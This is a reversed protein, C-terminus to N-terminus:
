AGCGCRRALRQLRRDFIGRAALGAQTQALYEMCSGNLGAASRVVRVVEDDALRGAYHRASRNVVFAIAAVVGQPTCARIWTPRYGGSLMERRWVLRLEDHAHHRAVRLAVGRCAGGRELGLVLGPQAVSGRGILSWLCFSRHLGHVRAVREEAVDFLPNWILSGYAFLWLDGAPAGALTQALSREIQAETWAHDGLQSRLYLSRASGHALDERVLPRAAPTGATGPPAAAPEAPQVALQPPNM